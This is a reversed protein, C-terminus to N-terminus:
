FYRATCLDGRPVRLGRKTAHGRSNPNPVRLGRKTTHGRSNPHSYASKQYIPESVKLVDSMIDVTTYQRADPMAAHLTRQNDHLLKTFGKWSPVSANQLKQEFVKPVIKPSMHKLVHPDRFKIHNNVMHVNPLHARAHCAHMVHMVYMVHMVRSMASTPLVSLPNKLLIDSVTKTKSRILQVRPPFTLAGPM